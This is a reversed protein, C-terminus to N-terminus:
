TDAGAATASDSEDGSFQFAYLKANRMRVHMRIAKGALDSVDSKGKWTVVRRLSNCVIRDCADAPCQSVTPVHVPEHCEIPLLGVEIWGGAGTDVNLELRGGSYILPPTVFEGGASGADASVYGDLRLRARHISGCYPPEPVTEYTGPKAGGHWVALRTYYHDLWHGQRVIGPGCYMNGVHEDIPPRIWAQRDGPRDWQIGDRSVALQIEELDFRHRLISFPMVYARDAWPYKTVPQNYFDAGCLDEVRDTWWAWQEAPLKPSYRTGGMTKDISEGAIFFPGHVAGDIADLEDPALVVDKPYLFPWSWFDDTEVRCVCRTPAWLRFYGVWRSLRDDWIAVNQSDGVAKTIPDGDNGVTWRVGDASYAGFIGDPTGMYLMKYRQEPVDNPDIVVSGPAQFSHRPGDPDGLMVINNDTSGHFECVGLNPKEWEVGDPSVACCLCSRGRPRGDPGDPLKERAHYYLKVHGVNPALVLHIIGGSEWPRDARLVQGADTPPNVTLSVGRCSAFFMEDLFLQKQAAIDHVTHAM